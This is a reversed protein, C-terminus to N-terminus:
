LGAGQDGPADDTRYSPRKLVVVRGEGNLEARQKGVEYNVHNWVRKLSLGTEKALQEPSFLGSNMVAQIRRGQQNRNEPIEDDDNAPRPKREPRPKLEARPKRPKVVPPTAPEIAEVVENSQTAATRVYEGFLALLEEPNTLFWESGISDGARELRKHLWRELHSAYLTRFIMLVVLSDSLATKNTAFQAFIRQLPDGKASGVKVRYRPEGKLQAIEVHTPFTYCYVYESGIGWGYTKIQNVVIGSRAQWAVDLLQVSLPSDASSPTDSEM